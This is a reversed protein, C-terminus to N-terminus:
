ARIHTEAVITEETEVQTRLVPGDDIYLMAVKVSNLRSSVIATRVRV